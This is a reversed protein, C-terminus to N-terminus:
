CNKMLPLVGESFRKINFCSREKIVFYDKKLFKLKSDIVLKKGNKLELLAKSDSFSIRWSYIPEAVVTLESGEAFVSLKELAHKLEQSFARAKALDISQLASNLVNSCVSLLGILMAIAACFVLLFELSAQAKAQMFNM